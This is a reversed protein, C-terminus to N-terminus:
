RIRGEGKNARLFGMETGEKLRRFNEGHRAAIVVTAILLIGALVPKRTLIGLALPVALATALTAYVIYDTILLVLVITLCAALFVRWDLALTVGLFCALGKGGRFRLYFPFIHGLVAAVGAAAGVYPLLDGLLWRAAFVCFAGKGMDWLATLVAQPWGLTIMANSAGLNGSGEKRLDFGKRRGLFYAMNTSGILYAALVAPIYLLYKVKTM